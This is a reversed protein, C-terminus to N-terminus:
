HGGCVWKLNQVHRVDVAKTVSQWSCQCCYAISGKARVLNDQLKDRDPMHNRFFLYDSRDNWENNPFSLCRFDCKTCRLRDCARRLQGITKGAEDNSGSLWVTSCKAKGSSEREHGGALSPNSRVAPATKVAVMPPSM